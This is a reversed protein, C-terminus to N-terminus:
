ASVDLLGGVGDGSQSIPTSLPTSLGSGGSVPSKLLSALFQESKAQVEAPSDSGDYIKQLQDLVSTRDTDSVGSKKLADSVADSVRQEIDKLSGGQEFSQKVTQGLASRLSQLQASSLQLKHLALAPADSSGSQGSRSLLSTASSLLSSGVSGASAISM